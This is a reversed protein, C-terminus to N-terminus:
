YLENLKSSGKLDTVLRSPQKGVVELVEYINDFTKQSIYDQDLTTYLQSQFEAASGKSVFLFQIFERNSHRSFRVAINSPSSIAVRRIQDRLAYDRSFAASIFAQYIIANAVDRGKQWVEMDEFQKDTAM